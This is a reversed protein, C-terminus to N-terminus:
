RPFFHLAALPVSNLNTGSFLPCSFWVIFGFLRQRFQLNFCVATKKLLPIVILQGAAPDRLNWSRFRACGNQWSRRGSETLGLRDRIWNAEKVSLTTACCYFMLQFMFSFYYFFCQLLGPSCLYCFMLLFAVNTPTQTSSTQNRRMLLSFSLSAEGWREDESWSAKAVIIHFIAADRVRDCPASM